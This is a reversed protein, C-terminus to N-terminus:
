SVPGCSIRDLDKPMRTARLQARVPPFAEIRVPDSGRVESPVTSVNLGCQALRNLSSRFVDRDGLPEGRRRMSPLILCNCMNLKALSGLVRGPGVELLVQPDNRLIRNMGAAFQVTNRLHCVWYRPDKADADSVWNGTVNSIFKIGPKQMPVQWFSQLFEQCVGNLLYSHAPVALPIRQSEVNMAYLEAELHDIDQCLGSVVCLNPANVAALSLRDGLLGTIVDAPLPVSLMAGMGVKEFLVGRLGVVGMAHRLSFVGSLCAAVYEGLSHGIMADPKVGLSMWLKALAYEVVFLAPLAISPRKMAETSSNEDLLAEWLDISLYKRALAACGDIEAHFVPESDYLDKGMAPYQAGGGPFMFVM